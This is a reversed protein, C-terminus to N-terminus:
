GHADAHAHDFPVALAKLVELAGHQTHTVAPEVLLDRHPTDGAADADLSGKHHVRRSDLLDLEDAVTVSAARGKVKEALTDALGRGQAFLAFSDLPSQGRSGGVRVGITRAM